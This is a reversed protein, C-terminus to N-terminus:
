FLNQTQPYKQVRACVAVYYPSWYTKKFYYKLLHDYVNRFQIFQKQIQWPEM